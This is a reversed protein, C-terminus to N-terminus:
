FQGNQGSTSQRRLDKTSFSKPKHSQTPTITTTGTIPLPQKPIPELRVLQPGTPKNDTATPQRSALKIKPKNSGKPQEKPQEKLQENPKQQVNISNQQLPVSLTRTGTNGASSSVSVSPVSDYIQLDGDGPQHKRVASVPPRKTTIPISYLSQDSPMTDIFFGEPLDQNDHTTSPTTPQKKVTKKTEQSNPPKANTTPVAVQVTDTGTGATNLANKNKKKNKKKKKTPEQQEKINDINAMNAMNAIDRNNANFAASAVAKKKERKGKKMHELLPTTAVHNPDYQWPRARREAEWQKEATLFSDSGNDATQAETLEEVFQRFLPWSELAARQGPRRATSDYKYPRQTPTFRVTTVFRRDGEKGTKNHWCSVFDLLVKPTTFSLIVSACRVTATHGPTFLFSRCHPLFPSLLQRCHEETISPPLGSLVVKSRFHKNPTDAMNNSNTNDPSQSHINDPSQSYHIETSM